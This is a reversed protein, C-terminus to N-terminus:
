EGGQLIRDFHGVWCCHFELSGGSQWGCWLCVGDKYQEEVSQELAALKKKRDKLQALLYPIDERAHAMFLADDACVCKRSDMTASWVFAGPGEIGAWWPGATAAKERAEIQEINGQTNM